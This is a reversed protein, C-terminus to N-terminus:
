VPLLQSLTQVLKNGGLLVTVLIVILGMVNAAVTNIHDGLLERQNMMLLLAGAVVPLLIANAAQAFLIATLPKAGAAAFVAGCLLVLLAIGRCMPEALDARRGLAGSVAFGAAIPATLASSLGAAFLGMAFLPQAAAGLVPELQRAMNLGDFTKGSAFVTVAATSLIALTILGGLTISLASDTRALSLSQELPTGEQWKSNAASAHLFLNYPVVTTGVLAIVSLSSGSPFPDLLTGRVLEASPLLAFACLVFVGSMMLVLAILVRELLRYRGRWILVGALGALIVSWHQPALASVSNLAMSAGTLNGTEYAANGIGVAVIVLILMGRGAHRNQMTRRLNSALSERTVLAQRLAMEQLVTTAFLSFLLAWVLGYGFHAGASSATAITGPGVFAATVLLGPGINSLRRTPMHLM